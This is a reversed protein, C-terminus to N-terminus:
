ECVIFQIDSLYMWNLIYYGYICLFLGCLSGKILGAVIAIQEITFICLKYLVCEDLVASSMLCAPIPHGITRARWKKYFYYLFLKSM